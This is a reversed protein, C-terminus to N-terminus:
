HNNDAKIKKIVDKYELRIIKNTDILINMKELLPKNEEPEDLLFFLFNNIAVRDSSTLIYNIRKSNTFYYERIKKQFFAVGDADWKGNQSICILKVIFSDQNIYPESNFFDAIYKYSDEYHAAAGTSDDFGFLQNFEIFTNPFDKFIKGNMQASDITINTMLITRDAEKCSFFQSLFCLLTLTSSRFKIKLRKM